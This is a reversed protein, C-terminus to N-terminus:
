AAKTAVVRPMRASVGCLVEHPITGVVAAVEDAGLRAGNREGFLVVEDGPRVGDVESVDVTIQDMSVLGVIPCRVGAVLVTGRNSQARQVGDAYGAAVTAVRTPASARWTRCYGVTDGAAVTKVLTVPAVVTMAPRLPLADRATLPPYGYLAIGLRVLDHHTHPARLIAGSNACHVLAQPALERLGAALEVFREHQEDTFGLDPAESDAFHTFLGAVDIESAHAALVRELEPLREPRAGLRGMGTDIKVHARAQRGTRGAAAALAEVAEADWVTVHVGASVLEDHDAPDTWGVVLVPAGFRLAQRAEEASSVGLWTAGGELAAEGATELGHGYGNAKVMAMVGVGPGVHRVVAAANDRLAGADVEARKFTARRAAAEARM